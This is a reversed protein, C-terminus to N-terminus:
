YEPEDRDSGPSHDHDQSHTLADLVEDVMGLHNGHDEFQEKLDVLYTTMAYLRQALLRAVDLAVGPASRLFPLPDDVVYFRARTTTKVTATHVTNLLVSIEGFVSGPDSLTNIEFGHKFVTVHGEALVYLAGARTGEEILVQGAEFTREPLKGQCTELIDSMTRHAFCLRADRLTLEIKADASGAVYARPARRILRWM